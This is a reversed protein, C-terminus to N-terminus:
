CPQSFCGTGYFSSEDSIWGEDGDVFQEAGKVEM